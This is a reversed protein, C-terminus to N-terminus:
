AFRVNGNKIRWRSEYALLIGGRQPRKWSIYVCENQATWIPQCPGLLSGNNFITKGATEKMAALQLAPFQDDTSLRVYGYKIREMQLLSKSRGKNERGEPSSELDGLNGHLWNQCILVL